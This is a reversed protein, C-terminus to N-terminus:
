QYKMLMGTFCPRLFERQYGFYRPDDRGRTVRRTKLLSPGSGETPYGVVRVRGISLGVGRMSM